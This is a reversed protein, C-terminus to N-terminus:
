QKGAIAAIEEPIHTTKIKWEQPYLNNARNGINKEFGLPHGHYTVVVFGRPTGAPLMVAEKRLFSIADHLSLEVLPFAGKYLLTSLALSTDPVIDRGKM